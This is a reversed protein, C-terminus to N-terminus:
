TDALDQQLQTLAGAVHIPVPRHSGGPVDLDALGHEGRSSALHALLETDLDLRGVENGQARHVAGAAAMAWYRDM